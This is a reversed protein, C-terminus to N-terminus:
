VDLVIQNSGSVTISALQKLPTPADYYNVEVRDLMNPSARGVRLTMLQDQVSAVSKAMREEGDMVVELGGDDEQLSIAARGCQRITRLPMAPGVRLAPTLVLAVALM